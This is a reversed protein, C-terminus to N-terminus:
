DIKFFRKGNEKTVAALESLGMGRLEAIRAATYLLMSSDCREGRRPVPALYPADTELMLREIPIKAAVEPARRANKFTVSGTFSLYWGSDVLMKATDWSGSFCHFVGYVDPFRRVADICDATAERNHMVVPMGLERALSLQAELCAIQDDRKAGDDYYYDLGVEGIARVKPHKALARLIDIDEHRFSGAAQPHIGVAAYVYSFKEALSIATCSTEINCGPNLILDVGRSPMLTLVEVRDDDFMEDDYHAHTDFYLQLEEM